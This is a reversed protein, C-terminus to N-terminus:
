VENQPLGGLKEVMLGEMAWSEVESKDAWEECKIM